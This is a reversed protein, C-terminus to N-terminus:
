TLKMKLYEFMSNAFIKNGQENLHPDYKWVVPIGQKTTKNLKEFLPIYGFKYYDSLNKIWNSAFDIPLGENHFKFGDIIIFSGKNKKIQKGLEHILKLNVPNNTEWSPFNKSDGKYKINTWSTEDTEHKKDATAFRKLFSSAFSIVFSQREKKKMRKGDMEKEIYKKQEEVFEQYMSPPFLNLPLTELLSFSDKINNQRLLEKFKKLDSLNIYYLDFPIEDLMHKPIYEGKEKRIHAFPRIRLCKGKENKLKQIGFFGSQCWSPSITRFYNKEFIYIFVFDPNFKSAFLNWNLFYQDIGYGPVGFNLVEFSKGTIQSLEQNLRKELLQGATKEFELQRGAVMSNGVLAIRLTNKHNKFSREKDRFGLSNIKIESNFERAYWHNGTIIHKSNPIFRWGLIPHPSLPFVKYAPNLYAYIQGGIEILLGLSILVILNASLLYIVKLPSKPM